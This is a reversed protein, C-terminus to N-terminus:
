GRTKTQDLLRTFRREMKEYALEFIADSKAIPRCIRFYTNWHMGKPKPPREWIPGPGAGLQRRAAQVNRCMRDEQHERTSSYAVGNCANCRFRGAVSRLVAKRKRCGPCLFWPRDGGYNCETYDLLIRERIPTWPGSEGRRISYDLEIEPIRSGEVGLVHLEIWGSPKGRSEWSITSVHWDGPPASLCGNRALYRVDLFLLPDSVNKTVTSDWRTSFYGGM